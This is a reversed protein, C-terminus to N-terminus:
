LGAPNRDGPRLIADVYTRNAAVDRYLFGGTWDPNMRHTPGDLRATDPGGRRFIDKFGARDTSIERKCSDPM